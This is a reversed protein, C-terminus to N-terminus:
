RGRGDAAAVSGRLVFWMTKGDEHTRVGWEAALADVLMLGRGTSRSDSYPQQEPMALNQDGVAVFVEGHESVAVGLSMQTRAHLISNTLLESTLLELTMRADAALDPAHATVFARGRRASQLEAPLDLHEIEYSGAQTFPTADELVPECCM